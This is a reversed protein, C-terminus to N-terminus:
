TEYRARVEGAFCGLSDWGSYNWIMTSAFTSWMIGEAKTEEPCDCNLASKRMHRMLMWVCAVDPLPLASRPLVSTLM